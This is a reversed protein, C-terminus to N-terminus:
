KHEYFLVWITFLLNSLLILLLFCPILLVVWKGFEETLFTPNNMDMQNMDTQDLTYSEPISLSSLYHHLLSYHYVLVDTMLFIM